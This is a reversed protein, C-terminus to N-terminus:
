TVDWALVLNFVNTMTICLSNVWLLKEPYFFFAVQRQCHARGTVAIIGQENASIIKKKSHLISGSIHIIIWHCVPLRVSLFRHMHAWRPSALILDWGIYNSLIRENPNPSFNLLISWCKDAKILMPILLPIKILISRCQANTNLPDQELPVFTKMLTKDPCKQM